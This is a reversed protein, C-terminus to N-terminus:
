DPSLPTDDKQTEPERDALGEGHHRLFQPLENMLLIKLDSRRADEPAAHLLVVGDGDYLFVEGVQV